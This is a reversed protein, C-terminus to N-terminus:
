NFRQKVCKVEQLARTNKDLSEHLEYLAKTSDRSTSDAKNFLRIMTVSWTERENQHRDMLRNFQRSSLFLGILCLIGMIGVATLSGWAEIFKPDALNEM